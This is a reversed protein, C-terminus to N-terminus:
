NKKLSKELKNFRYTIQQHCVRHLPQINEITYKGGSSKPIIHHFEMPEGNNLPEECHPCKHSYKKLVAARFKSDILKERRKIFYEQDKILYPNRDLKM